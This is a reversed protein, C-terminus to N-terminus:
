RQSSPSPFIAFYSVANEWCIGRVLRDTYAPDDPLEGAEVWEGLTNCLIRRFYEHRPFSMFSRSDTLMGVWAGILGVGAYERLHREMGDKQDNFWWAAGLQVKGAVQSATAEPSTGAFSAALTALPNHKSPDLSYLITKPLSGEAELAGLFSALPAVIPADSTSDGGVDPGFARFLRPNVNRLAAIHLQMTWDRQANLRACHLLLATTLKEQELPSLARGGRAKRVIADLEADQAPAYPPVLLAHDSLRCGMSHFYDHRQALAELLSPYSDVEVGAVRGLEDVYRNWAAVDGANMAKDPRFAPLVKTQFESGRRQEEAIARHWRLDDVPDDTTCLVKVNFKTLLSRPSIRETALMRNAKQRIELANQPTLLESIGFIRQLELHSWHLLPNGAANLLARAYAVFKEDWPGAGGCLSEPEGNARMIRWKYHDGELWMRAIDDFPEDEAIAKPSLHCHYDFIPLDKAVGFFLRKATENKLLFNEDLFRTM